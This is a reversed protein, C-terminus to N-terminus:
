AAPSATKATLRNRSDASDAASGCVVSGAVSTGALARDVVDPATAV